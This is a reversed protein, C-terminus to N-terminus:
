QKKRWFINRLWNRKKMMKEKPITGISKDLLVDNGWKKTGSRTVIGPLLTRKYGMSRYLKMTGENREDVKLYMTEYGRSVAWEECAIVLNQGIGRRRHLPCVGLDSLYPRPCTFALTSETLFEIQSSPDNPRGDVCCFGVIEEKNSNSNNDDNEDTCIATAVFLGYEQQPSSANSDFCMQLHNYKYKRIYSDFLPQSIPHFAKMLMNTIENLESHTHQHKCTSSTTCHFNNIPKWKSILFLLLCEILDYLAKGSKRAERVIYTYNTDEVLSKMTANSQSQRTNDLTLAQEVNDDKKGEKLKLAAGNIIESRLVDNPTARVGVM